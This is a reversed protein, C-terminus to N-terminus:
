KKKKSEHKDDKGFNEDIAGLREVLSPHSFHYLSYLSDPVLNGLNEINIKILGQALAAGMGLDQAYKDAAFENARSNITVWLAMVKDVPTWLTQIFLVLGIFAPLPEDAGFSFGFASFLAPTNLVLSFCLFLSFTYIQSVIFGQITHGLKWHGIEHGLIALLEPQEVQKILTDFLVIRKSKFFGYFYANSHASRRSGDVSYIETLPFSVQEALKEIAEYLPGEDLKTYQNFLPAILTPYIMMMVASVLMLFFWVYIYFHQGGLRILWIMAGLIPIGLVFQLLLGM